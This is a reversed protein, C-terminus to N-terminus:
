ILEITVKVKICKFDRKKAWWSWPVSSGGLFKKKSTKMQCSLSYLHPRGSQDICVYQSEPQKIKM